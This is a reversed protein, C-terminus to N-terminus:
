VDEGYGAVHEECEVYSRESPFCIVNASAFFSKNKPHSDSRYLSRKRIPAQLLRHISGKKMPSMLMLGSALGHTRYARSVPM